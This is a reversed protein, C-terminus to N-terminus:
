NKIQYVPIILKDGPVLGEAESIKNYGWLLEQTTNFRRAISFLSDGSKVTYLIVSAHAPVQSPDVVHVDTIPMFEVEEFVEVRILVPVTYRGQSCDAGEPWVWPRVAYGRLSGALDFFQSFEEEQVMVRRMQNDDTYFINLTLLGRVLIKGELPQAEIIRVRPLVLEIDQPTSAFPCNGELNMKFESEGIRNRLQVKKQQSDAGAISSVYEAIQQSYGKATAKLGFSLEIAAGQDVTTLSVGEFSCDLSSERVEPAAFDMEFSIDQRGTLLDIKGEGTLCYVKALIIGEATLRGEDVQWSLNGISLETAAPATEPPLSLQMSIAQQTPIEELINQVRVSNTEVQLDGGNVATVIEMGQTQVARLSIIIYATINAVSGEGQDVEVGDFKLDAELRVEAGLAPATFAAMFELAPVALTSVEEASGVCSLIGELEGQVRIKRPGQIITLRDKPLMLLPQLMYQTGEPIKISAPVTVEQQASFVVTELTYERRSVKAQDKRPM